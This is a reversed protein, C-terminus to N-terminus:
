NTPTMAECGLRFTSAAVEDIYIRTEGGSDSGMIGVGLGSWIHEPALAQQAYTYVPVENMWVTISDRHLHAELCFWEDRRWGGEFYTNQDNNNIRLVGDSDGFGIRTSPGGNDNNAPESTLAMLLSHGLSHSGTPIKAYVRVYFEDGDPESTGLYSNQTTGPGGETWLELATDGGCGDAVYVQSV